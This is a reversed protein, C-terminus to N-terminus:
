LYFTFITRDITAGFSKSDCTLLKSCSWRGQYSQNQGPSRGCGRRSTTREKYSKGVIGFFIPRPYTTVQDYACHSQPKVSPLYSLKRYSVIGFLMDHRQSSIATIRSRNLDNYIFSNVSYYSAHEGTWCTITNREIIIIIIVNSIIKIMTTTTTTTTATTTTTTTATETTTTTTTTTTAAAAAAATLMPTTSM